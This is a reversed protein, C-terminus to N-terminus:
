NVTTKLLTAKRAFNSRDITTRVLANNLAAPLQSQNWISAGESFQCPVSRNSCWSFAPSLCWNFTTRSFTPAPAITWTLHMRASRNKPRHQARETTTFQYKLTPWITTVGNRLVDWAITASQRAWSSVGISPALGPSWAYVIIWAQHTFRYAIINSLIKNWAHPLFDLWWYKEAWKRVILFHVFSSVLKGVRISTARPHVM